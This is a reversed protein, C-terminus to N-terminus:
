VQNELAQYIPGLHKDKKQYKKLVDSDWPANVWLQTTPDRALIAHVGEVRIEEEVDEGLEEMTNRRSLLDAFLNQKGPLHKVIPM